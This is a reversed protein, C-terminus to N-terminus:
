LFNFYLCFLADEASFISDWSHMIETRCFGRCPAGLVLICHVLTSKKQFFIRTTYKVPCLLFRTGLM